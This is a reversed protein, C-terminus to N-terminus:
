RHGQRRRSIGLVKLVIDIRVERERCEEEAKEEGSGGEKTSRGPLRGGSYGPLVKPLMRENWEEAKHPRSEFNEVVKMQSINRRLSHCVMVYDNTREVWEGKSDMSRCTSAEKPAVVHMLEKQFWPSKEFDEPCMNADCAVLWPHRTVNAERVM